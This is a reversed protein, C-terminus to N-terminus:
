RNLAIEGGCPITIKHTHGFGVRVNHSGCSLLASSASLKAGDVWVHGPIAPRRLRLTGTTPTGPTGAITQGAASTSGGSAPTPASPSMAALATDPPPPVTAAAIPSEPNGPRAAHTAVALVLLLVCAGVAALVVGVFSRRPRAPRLEMTPNVEEDLDRLQGLELGVPAMSSAPRGSRKRARMPPLREVVELLDSPYLEM